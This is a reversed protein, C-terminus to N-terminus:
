VNDEKNKKEEEAIEQSDQIQTPTHMQHIDKEEVLKTWHKQAALNQFLSNSLQLTCAM